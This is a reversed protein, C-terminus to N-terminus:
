LAIEGLVHRSPGHASCTGHCLCPPMLQVEKMSDRLADDPDETAVPGDMRFSIRPLYPGSGTSSVSTIRVLSAQRRSSGRRAPTSEGFSAEGNSIAGTSSGRRRLDVDEYASAAMTRHRGARVGAGAPRESLPFAPRVLKSTSTAHLSSFFTKREATRWHARKMKKRREGPSWGSELRGSPELPVRPRM